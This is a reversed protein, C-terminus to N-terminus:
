PRIGYANAIETPPKYEVMGEFSMKAIRGRRGTVVQSEGQIRHVQGYLLNGVTVNVLLDTNLIVITSSFSITDRTFQGPMVVRGTGTAADINQTYGYHCPESQYVRILGSPGVEGTTATVPRVVRWVDARHYYHRTQRRNLISEAM